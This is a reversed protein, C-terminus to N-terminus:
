RPRASRRDGGAAPLPVPLKSGLAADAPPTSRCPRATPRPQRRRSTSTPTEAGRPRRAPLRRHRGARRRRAAPLRPGAGGRYERDRVGVAYTGAAPCTFGLLGDTGEALVQGDADTLVLVPDLKSGLGAATAVQVGIQQGAKAAFRFFDADGARDLSGVVTAPLKVTM